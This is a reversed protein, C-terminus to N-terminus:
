ETPPYLEAQAIRASERLIDWMGSEHMANAFVDCFKDFERQNPLRGVVQKFIEKGENESIVYTVVM